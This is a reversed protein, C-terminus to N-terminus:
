SQAVVRNRGSHKAQYLAADSRKLLHDLDDQTDQHRLSSVGASLTVTGTAAMDARAVAHLLEQAVLQAAASDTDPLLVTFEEGGVRAVVDAKRMRQQLLNALTSLVKDGVDHGHQDNIQKFFDIDLAIASLPRGSRRALAIAMQAQTHFGRRNLLRTLPDTNAQRELEANAAELERTRLRVQEQMEENARLLQGTMASLAQSLQFVERNSHLLPIPASHTRDEVKGVAQALRKLDNSVHRALYWAVVAACLGAIAAFALSFWLIRNADAYAAQVPQRAVIWWGLDHAQSPTPLRVASTLFLNESDTWATVHPRNNDGLDPPLTQDLQTYRMTEGQPAYILTGQHDFIFVTQDNSQAAGQLLREVADRVWDWNSHIGIVGLLSGDPRLIPAAFDIVRLAEEHPARPLLDALLKAPHVESIFAGKQAQKFWPRQSVDAGLLLNGTANRVVGHTDAIGIWVSYPNIHQVRALLESVSESALGQQWLEKSTALVQTRRSQQQLDQQLMTAANNAVIHLAKAAQQQLRLKLIEGALLCLSIALLAAFGGFIWAIQTRLSRRPLDTPPM